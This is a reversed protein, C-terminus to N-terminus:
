RDVPQAAYPPADLWRRARKRSIRDVVLAGAAVALLAVAPAADWIDGRQRGVVACTVALLLLTLALGRAPWPSRALAERAHEGTAERLEAGPDEHRRLATGTAERTSRTASPFWVRRWILVAPVAPVWGAQDWGMLAEGAWGVAWIPAYAGALWRVHASKWVAAKAGRRTEDTVRRVPRIPAGAAVPM